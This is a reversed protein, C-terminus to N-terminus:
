RNSIALTVIFQVDCVIEHERLHEAVLVDRLIKQLVDQFNGDFLNGYDAFSGRLLIREVLADAEIDHDLLLNGVCRALRSYAAHEIDLQLHGISALKGLASAIVLAHAVQVDEGLSDALCLELFLINQEDARIIGETFAFWYITEFVAGESFM